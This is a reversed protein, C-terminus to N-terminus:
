NTLLTTQIAMLHWPTPEDPEHPPGATDIEMLSPSDQDSSRQNDCSLSLLGFALCCDNENRALGQRM